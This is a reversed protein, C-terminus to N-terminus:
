KKKKDKAKDKKKEVIVRAILCDPLNYCIEAEAKDGIKDYLRGASYCDGIVTKVSNAVYGITGFPTLNVKIAEKDYKNDPEKILKVVTGKELFESGYRFQTGAITVYIDAM